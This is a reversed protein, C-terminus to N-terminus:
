LARHQELVYRHVEGLLLPLQQVRGLPEQVLLHHQLVVPLQHWQTLTSGMCSGVAHMEQRLWWIATPHLSKWAQSKPNLSGKLSSSLRNYEWREPSFTKSSPGMMTCSRFSRGESEEFPRIRLCIQWTGHWKGNCPVTDGFRLQYELQLLSLLWPCWLPLEWTLTAWTLECSYLSPLQHFSSALHGPWLM